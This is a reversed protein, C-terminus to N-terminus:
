GLLHGFRAAKTALYRDNVGNAAVAHPERGVVEVGCAELAAVKHPNNTLLRLRPIGLSALMNAAVLFSREDAGWGLARNADLTDLGRDQLAYARLKNVLGIGRGEQALYLLVGAGEQAMRAIAGRLQPGCDCRLSGLLDGTFCESHIRVLPAPRDQPRGVVIAVHEIGTGPNRFAVIESEAAGELPVHAAAVRVLSAALAAPYAAVDAGDVALLGESRALDAADPRAPAALVAPLLRGLKALALAAAAQAPATSERPEALGMQEATPDALRRLMEDSIAELALPLAVAPLDPEIPRRLVAAARVPALLLLPAGAALRAFERLAGPTATEAALIALPEAAALLVPAGRRLEGAARHVARLRLAEADPVDPALCAAASSTEAPDRM